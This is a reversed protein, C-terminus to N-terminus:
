HPVIELRQPPVIVHTQPLLSAQECPTQMGLALVHSSRPHLQSQQLPCQQEGPLRHIPPVQVPPISTGHRCSLKTREGVFPAIVRALLTRGTRPNATEDEYEKRAQFASMFILTFSNKAMVAMSADVATAVCAHVVDSELAVSSSAPLVPPEAPVPPEDEPPEAPSVSPLAPDDVPPVAGSAPEPPADGSPLTTV